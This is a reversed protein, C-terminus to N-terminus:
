RARVRDRYLKRQGPAEHVKGNLTAVDFGAIRRYRRTVKELEERSVLSAVDDEPGRLREDVLQLVREPGMQRNALVVGATAPSRAAQYRALAFVGDGEAEILAAALAEADLIAQAAGNSGSTYMPHAADGLLSVRGFSWREVPDRDVLPFEFIQRTSCFLAPIDIFGFNWEAFRPLFDELKGPRSWDTRPPLKAQGRVMAVWNVLSRGRRAAEASVPYIVAEQNWHGAIIMTRGDLFPKSEVVGRWVTVGSFSPPGEDPYLRARVTSHIGDAGILLDGRYSGRPEGGARDRFTATVGKADQEFGDFRHGTHIAENGLRQRAADLLIMQLAGRHISYQPWRFGASRGRPDEMIEQGYQTLYRLARTEVGTAALPQGLGLEILERTAHPLLNIGVGLPRIEAASEFVRVDIGRAHLKLAATLGGIGAGVILVRM